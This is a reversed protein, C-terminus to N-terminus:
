RQRRAAEALDQERVRYVARLEAEKEAAARRGAAMADAIRARVGDAREAAVHAAHEPTLKRQTEEIKRVAWVGIAVGAGLGVTVFFARKFM